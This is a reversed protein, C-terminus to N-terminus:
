TGTIALQIAAATAPTTLKISNRSARCYTGPARADRGSKALDGLARRQLPDALVPM